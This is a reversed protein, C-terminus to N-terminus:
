DEIEVPMGFAAEARKILDQENDAVGQQLQEGVQYAIRSENNGTAMSIAASIDDANGQKKMGDVIIGDEKSFAVTLMGDAYSRPKGFRMLRVVAPNTQKLVDLMADFVQKADM